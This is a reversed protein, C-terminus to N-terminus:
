PMVRGHPAMVVASAGLHEATNCIVEGVSWTDLSGRTIDLVFKVGRERLVAGFRRKM